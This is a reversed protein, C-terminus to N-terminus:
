PAIGLVRCGAPGAWGCGVDGWALILNLITEKM